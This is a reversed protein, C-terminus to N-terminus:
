MLEATMLDGASRGRRLDSNYDGVVTNGKRIVKATARPLPRAGKKTVKAQASAATEKLSMGTGGSQVKGKKSAQAVTKHKRRGIEGSQIADIRAAETVAKSSEGTVDNQRTGIWRTCTPVGRRARKPAPSVESIGESDRLRKLGSSGSQQHTALNLQDEPMTIQEHTVSEEDNFSDETSSTSSDSSSAADNFTVMEPLTLVDTLSVPNLHALGINTATANHGQEALFTLFLSQLRAPDIVLLPDIISNTLQSGPTGLTATATMGMGPGVAPAEGLLTPDINTDGPSGELRWDATPVHQSGGSVPLHSSIPTRRIVGAGSDGCDIGDIDTADPAAKERRKGKAHPRHQKTVTPPEATMTIVKSTMLSGDKDLHRRFAFSIIGADQRAKWHGLCAEVDAKQMKSPDQLTWYEVEANYNEEGDETVTNPREPMFQTVDIFEDPTM